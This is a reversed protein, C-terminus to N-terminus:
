GRGRSRSAKRYQGPTLGQRDRFLKIFHETSQYGCDRAIQGIPLASNELLGRARALRMLILDERPQIGFAEVYQLYFYSRTFYMAKAMRNVSWTGPSAAAEERLAILRKRTQYARQAQPTNLVQQEVLTDFLRSIHERVSDSHDVEFDSLTWSIYEVLRTLEESQRVYFLEDFPLNYRRQWHSFDAKFTVFNNTFPRDQAYYEQRTGPSYLMCANEGASVHKGEIVLTVPSLFHVFNIADQGHERILHYGPPETKLHMAGLLKINM